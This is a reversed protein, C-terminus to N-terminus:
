SLVSKLQKWGVERFLQDLIPVLENIAEIPSLASYNGIPVEGAQWHGMQFNILEPDVRRDLLSSKLWHRGANAPISNKEKLVSVLQSPSLSRTVMGSKQKQFFFFPGHQSRSNRIKTYWASAQLNDYSLVQRDVDIINDLESCFQPMLLRLLGRLCGLHRRYEILQATLVSPIAVIRSHTFDCDDKDSIGMLNLSPLFLALSPLPNWAARYGTGFLLMWVTYAVFANHYHTIDEFRHLTKPSSAKTQLSLDIILQKITAQTPTYTSGLYQEDQQWYRLEFLSVAFPKGSYVSIGKEVDDWFHLLQDCRKQDLVSSYSRAVRTTYMNVAYSFDMYIPDIVNTSNIYNSVFNTLRNLSLRKGGSNDSIKALKQALTSEIIEVDVDEILSGVLRTGMHTTILRVLFKPCATFVDEVTKRLGIQSLRPGTSHSLPFCWWGNGKPDIYLGQKKCALERFVCLNKVESVSKSLLLMIWLIIATERSSDRSGYVLLKNALLYLEAPMLLQTNQMGTNHSRRVRSTVDIETRHKVMPNFNISVDLLAKRDRKESMDANAMVFSQSPYFDNEDLGESDPIMNDQPLIASLGDDTGVIPYTVPDGYRKPRRDKDGHGRTRSIAPCWSNRFFHRLVRVHSTPYINLKSYKGAFISDLNAAISEPTDLHSNLIHARSPDFTKYRLEMMLRFSSCAEEERSTTQTALEPDTLSDITEFYQKIFAALLAISHYDTKYKWSCILLVYFPREHCWGKRYTNRYFEKNISLDNVVMQHAHFANYIYPALCLMKQIFNAVETSVNNVRTILGILQFFASLDDPANVRELFENLDSLIGETEIEIANKKCYGEIHELIKQKLTTM